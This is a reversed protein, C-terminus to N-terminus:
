LEVEGNNLMNCAKQATEVSSFCPETSKIVYGTYTMWYKSEINFAVTYKEKNGDSWDVVDDECLEDRLSLLRNFRRMEVAAREAQQQTPRETGFEKTKDSSDTKKVYGEGDIWWEGGVPLWKKHEATAGDCPTLREELARVRNQLDEIIKEYDNMNEGTAVEEILDLDCNTELYFNGTKTYYFGDDGLFPYDDVPELSNIKIIEGNNNKYIKGVEIKM